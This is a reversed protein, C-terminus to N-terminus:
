VAPINEGPLPSTWVGMQERMATNQALGFPVQSKKCLGSIESSTLHEVSCICLDWFLLSHPVHLSKCPDESGCLKQQDGNYSIGNRLCSIQFDAKRRIDELLLGGSSGDGM